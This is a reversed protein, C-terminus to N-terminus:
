GAAADLGPAVRRSHLGFFRRKGFGDDLQHRRDRRCFLRRSQLTGCGPSAKKAKREMAGADAGIRCVPGHVCRRRFVAMGAIDPCQRGADGGKYLYLEPRVPNRLRRRLSLGMTYPQPKEEDYSAGRKAPASVGAVIFLRRRWAIAKAACAKAM